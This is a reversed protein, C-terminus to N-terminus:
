ICILTFTSLFLYFQIKLLLTSFIAKNNYEQLYTFMAGIAGSIIWFVVSSVHLPRVQEFSLIHKAFGPIIYQFSGILGFTMGLVLLILGLLIFRSAVAKKNKNLVEM